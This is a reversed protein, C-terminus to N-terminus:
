REQQIYFSRSRFKLLMVNNPPKHIIMTPQPMVCYAMCFLFLAVIFEVLYYMTSKIM